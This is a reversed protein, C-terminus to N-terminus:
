DYNKGLKVTCDMISTRLVQERLEFERVKDRYEELDVVLRAYEANLQKLHKKLLTEIM